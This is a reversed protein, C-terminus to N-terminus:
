ARIVHVVDKCSKEKQFADILDRDKVKSFPDGLNSGLNQIAVEFQVAAAAGGSQLQRLDATVAAEIEVPRSALLGGVQKGHSTGPYAGQLTAEHAKVATLLVNTKAAAQLQYASPQSPDLTAIADAYRTRDNELQLYTRCVTKAYKAPSEKRPKAEAVGVSGIVLAGVVLAAVGGRVTGHM